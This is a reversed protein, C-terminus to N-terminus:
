AKGEALITFAPEGWDARTDHRYGCLANALEVPIEWIFDVAMSTPHQREREDEEVQAERMRSAIEDFAAPPKGWVRLDDRAKRADHVVSWVQKGNRLGFCASYMCHEEVQCAVVECGQSLRTLIAQSAILRHVIDDLLILYSGDPLTAGRLAPRPYDYEASAVGTDSLGLALHIEKPTQGKVALFSLSIGM